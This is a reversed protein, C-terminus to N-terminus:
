TSNQITDHKDNQNKQEHNKFNVYSLPEISGTYWIESNIELQRLKNRNKQSNLGTHFRRGIYTFHSQSINEVPQGSVLKTAVALLCEHHYINIRQQGPFYWGHFVWLAFDRQILPRIVSNMTPMIKLISALHERVQLWCLSATLLTISIVIDVNYYQKIEM